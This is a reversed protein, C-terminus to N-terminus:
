DLRGCGIRLRLHGPHAPSPFLAGAWSMPAMELFAREELCLAGALPVTPAGSVPRLNWTVFGLPPVLATLAACDPLSAVWRAPLGTAASEPLMSCGRPCVGRESPCAAVPLARDQCRSPGPRVQHAGHPEARPRGRASQLEADRKRQLTELERTSVARPCSCEQPLPERLEARLQELARGHEDRLAQVESRHRSEVADLSSLHRTELARIDAAHKAQLEAVRADALARQERDCAAKLERVDAQHRAELDTRLAVIHQQHRDQLLQLESAHKERAERLVADQEAACKEGIEKRQELFRRHCVTLVSLLVRLRLLLSRSVSGM